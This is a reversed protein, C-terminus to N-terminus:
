SNCSIISDLYIDGCGRSELAVPYSNGRSLPALGQEIQELLDKKFEEDVQLLRLIEEDQVYKQVTEDKCLETYLGDDEYAPVPLREVYEM